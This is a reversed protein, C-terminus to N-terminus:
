QSFQLLLCKGLDVGGREVRCSNYGRGGEREAEKWLNLKRRELALGEM